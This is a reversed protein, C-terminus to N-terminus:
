DTSVLGLGDLDVVLGANGLELYGKGRLKV